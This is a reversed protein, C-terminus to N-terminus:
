DLKAGAAIAWIPFMRAEAPPDLEEFEPGLEAQADPCDTGMRAVFVHVPHGGPTRGQWLRAPIGDMVTYVDTSEIVLRM